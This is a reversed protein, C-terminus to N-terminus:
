SILHYTAEDYRVRQSGKSQLRGPEETWPSEGPLFVPTPLWKSRWPIKRKKKKLPDEQDLTQVWTEQIAPLNKVLQTVLSAWSYQLPNGHGGGPSRGSGPISSKDRLDGANASLKRVVLVVQYVWKPSLLSFTQLLQIM